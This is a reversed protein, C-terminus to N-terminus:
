RLNLPSNGNVFVGIGGANNLKSDNISIVQQDNVFLTLQSGRVVVAMKVQNSGMPLSPSFGQSLQQVQGSGTAKINVKNIAYTGDTGIVFLYGTGHQPDIRTALGMYTGSQLNLNAEFTLNQLTIAPSQPICLASGSAKIVHYQEGSFRCTTGNTTGEQWLYGHSNDRMPDKLVLTGTGPPYPNKENPLTNSSSSTKTAIVTPAKSTTATTTTGTTQNSQSTNGNKSLLFASGGLLLIVVLAILGVILARNKKQGGNDNPHMYQPPLPPVSQPLPPVGQQQYANQNAPMGNYPPLGANAPPVQPPNQHAPAFMTPPVPSAGQNNPYFPSSGPAFAGPPVQAAGQRAPPYNGPPSPPADQHAPAFVTPPLNGGSSPPASVFTGCRPCRNAGGPLPTGCVACTM